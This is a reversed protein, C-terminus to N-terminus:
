VMWWRIVVGRIAPIFGAHERKGSLVLAPAKQQSQLVNFKLTPWSATVPKPEAGLLCGCEVPIGFRVAHRLIRTLTRM